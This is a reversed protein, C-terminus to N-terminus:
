RLLWMIRGAKPFCKSPLRSEEKGDRSELVDLNQSRRVAEVESEDDDRSQVAKYSARNRRHRKSSNNIIIIM